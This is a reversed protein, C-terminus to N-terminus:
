EKLFSGCQGQNGEVGITSFTAIKINTKNFFEYYLPEIIKLINNHILNYMLDQFIYNIADIIEDKQKYDFSWLRLLYAKNGNGWDEEKKFVCFNSYINYDIKPFNKNLRYRGSLKFVRNYNINQNKLFNLFYLMIIIEGFTKKEFFNTTGKETLFEETRSNVQSIYSDDKLNKFLLLKQKQLSIHHRKEFDKYSTDYLCIDASSDYKKISSITKLLQKFNEESDFVGYENYLASTVLFINKLSQEM